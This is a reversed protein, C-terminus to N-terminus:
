PKDMISHISNVANRQFNMNINMQNLNAMPPAARNNMTFPNPAGMNMMNIMNMNKGKRNNMNMHNMMMNNMNMNNMMPRCKPYKIPYKPEKKRDYTPAFKNTEEMPIAQFKLIEFSGKVEIYKLANM